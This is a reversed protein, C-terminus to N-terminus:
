AIARRFNSAAWWLVLLAMRALFAFAQLVEADHGETHHSISIHWDDGFQSFSALNKGIHVSWGGCPKGIRFLQVLISVSFLSQM